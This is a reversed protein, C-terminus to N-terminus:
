SHTIVCIGTPLNEYLWQADTSSCNICGHSGSSQYKTPSWSGWAQWTADHFGVSNGVFPMWYQVPTEYSPKGTAPNTKGILTEPSRKNNLFYIGTPTARDATPRGSIFNWQYVLNDNADYYRGVQESLDVDVYAGWDRKGPGNYVDGSQSTPIDITTAGGAVLADYVNQALSETDVQWGYTGGSVTVVKGDARTYTRETGVTDMGATQDDVWTTVADQDIVPTFDDPNISVWSAFTKKDITAANVSGNLTLTVNNPFLAVVKQLADTTKSDSALVKPKTLEDQTVECETRMSGMCEGVKKALADIDIQTGYVEPKIVFADSADDYAITADESATQGENFSAVQAKLGDIFSSDDYSAIVVDSVDHDKFIELPWAAVDQASVADHAIKQPDINLSIDDHAFSYSFGQGKIDLSYTDTQQQIESALTDSSQFSLDEDNLTTNPFFHGSFFLAGGGYIAALVLVIVGITIFVPKKSRKPQAEMSSLFADRSYSEATLPVTTTPGQGAAHRGEGGMHSGQKKSGTM